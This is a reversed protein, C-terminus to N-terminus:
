ARELLHDRRELLLVLGAQMRALRGACATCNIDADILQQLEFAQLRIDRRIRAISQKLRTLDSDKGSRNDLRENDFGRDDLGKSALAGNLNKDM